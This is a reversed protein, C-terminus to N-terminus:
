ISPHGRAVPSRPSEEFGLLKRLAEIVVLVACTTSWISQAKERLIDVREKLSLYKLLM